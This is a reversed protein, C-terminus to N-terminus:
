GNDAVNATWARGTVADFWFAQELDVGWDICEGERIPSGLKPLVFSLAQENYQLILLSRSGPLSQHSIVKGTLRTPCENAQARLCDATLGVTARLETGPPLTLTKPIRWRAGQPLFFRDEGEVSVAGELWTVYPSCLLDVVRRVRPAQQLQNPEDIQLLTGQDLVAVRQGLTLAEWPNHTVMIITANLLKPLLLLRAQIEQRLAGDLHAFPEDLLILGGGRLLARGLAARQREGGSLESPKRKLLPTLKLWRAMEEVSVPLSSSQFTWQREISQGPYLAPRQFLM